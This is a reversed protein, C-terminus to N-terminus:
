RVKKRPERTEDESEIESEEDEEDESDSDERDSIEYTDMPSRLQLHSLADSKAGSGPTMPEPARHNMGIDEDINAQQSTAQVPADLNIPTKNAITSPDQEANVDYAVAEEVGAGPHFPSEKLPDVSVKANAGNLLEQELSQDDANSSQEGPSKSNESTSDTVRATAEEVPRLGTTATGLNRAAKARMQATLLKRKNEKEDVMACAAIEGKSNSSLTNAYTTAFASPKKAAKTQVPFLCPFNVSCPRGTRM